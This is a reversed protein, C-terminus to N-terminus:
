NNRYRNDLQELIERGQNSNYWLKITMPDLESVDSREEFDPVIRHLQEDISRRICERASIGREIYEEGPGLWEESKLNGEVGDTGEWKLVPPISVDPIDLRIIMQSLVEDWEGELEGEGIFHFEFWLESNTLVDNVREFEGEANRRCFCLRAVKVVERDYDVRVVCDDFYREENYTQDLIDDNLFEVVEDLFARIPRPM